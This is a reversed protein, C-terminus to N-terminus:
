LKRNPKTTFSVKSKIDEGVSALRLKMVGFSSRIVASASSRLLSVNDHRGLRSLQYIMYKVTPM